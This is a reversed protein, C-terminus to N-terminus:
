FGDWTRLSSKMGLSKRSTEKGIKNKINVSSGSSEFDTLKEFYEQTDALRGLM